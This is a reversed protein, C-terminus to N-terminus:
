PHYATFPNDKIGLLQYLDKIFWSKFQSGQDSIVKRSISHLKFVNDQYIKAIGESILKTNTPIAHIQRSFYDIIIYIANFGQSMLLEEILNVSIVEWSASPIKNPNLPTHKREHYAKTRQCTNCGM